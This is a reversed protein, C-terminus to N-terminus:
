QIILKGTSLVKNNCTINYVYTGASLNGREISTQQQNITTQRVLKSQMDYLQFILDKSKVGEDKIELTCSEKMPNPYISIELNPTQESIGVGTPDLEWWTQVLPWGLGIGVYGKTGISLAVGSSLAGPPYNIVPNWVDTTPNYEWFDQLNAGNYGTGLYGNTGISFAVGCCRVSGPLTAKQLWTNTNQDWEWLDNYFLTASSAGTGVYAKTGISFAAASYRGSLPFNAKQTWTNLSQNWEWLDQKATLSDRGLAVYAKTGISFAVADRRPTGLFNAKRTWTNSTQDWEYLDKNNFSGTYTDQGLAVYGKTGISFAIAAIRGGIPFNAKQTWADNSSNYEWLDGFPMVGDTGTAIYGKNGISFGVALYRGTGLFNAKQTWTGQSFSNATPVLLLCFLIFAFPLLFVKTGVAKPIQSFFKKRKNIKM